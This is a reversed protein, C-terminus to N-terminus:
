NRTPVTVQICLGQGQLGPLLQLRGGAKAARQRMGALGHGADQGNLATAPLGKGNDSVQLQWAGGAGDQVHQLAIAVATAGSHQLVNSVAEQVIATLERAPAGMPMAAAGAFAVDWQLTIGRQNLSPQIRHRLRALRDILADDDGDMSDVLLRVDLLCHELAKVLPQMSPNHADVMAMAHVLQSGVQDHLDRAIRQREQRLEHSPRASRRPRWQLARPLQLLILMGLLITTVLNFLLWYHSAGSPLNTFVLLLNACLQIFWLAACALAYAPPRTRFM